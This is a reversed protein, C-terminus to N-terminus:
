NGELAREISFNEGNLIMYLLRDAAVRERKEKDLEISRNYKQVLEATVRELTTIRNYLIPFKIAGRTLDAPVFYFEWEENVPIPLSILLFPDFCVSTKSCTSCVVTSKFQGVM